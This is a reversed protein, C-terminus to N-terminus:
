IPRFALHFHFIKRNFHKLRRGKKPQRKNIRFFNDGSPLFIFFGLIRQKLTPMKAKWLIVLICPCISVFVFWLILKLELLELILHPQSRVDFFSLAIEVNFYVGYFLKYFALLSTLIWLFCFLSKVFIKNFATLYFVAFLIFVMPSGLKLFACIDRSSILNIAFFLLGLINVFTM